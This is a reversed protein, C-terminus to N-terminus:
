AARAKKQTATILEIPFKLVASKRTGDEARLKQLGCEGRLVTSFRRKSMLAEGRMDCHRKYDPWFKNAPLWRKTEREQDDFIRARSDLWRTVSNESARKRSHKEIKWEATNDHTAKFPLVNDPETVEEVPEEPAPAPAPTGPGTPETGSTPVSGANPALKDSVPSTIPENQGIDKRVDSNVGAIKELAKMPTRPAASVANYAPDAFSGALSMPRQFSAGAAEKPKRLSGMSAVALPMALMRALAWFLLGFVMLADQWWVEDDSVKGLMRSAWGAEPMGGANVIQTDFKGELASIRKTLGHLEDEQAETVKKLKQLDDRRSRAKALEDRTMKHSEVSADRSAAMDAQGTVHFRLDLRVTYVGAALVLALGGIALLQSGNQWCQRVYLLGLCEWLVIGAAALGALQQFETTMTYAVNYTIVASYAVFLAAAVVGVGGTAYKMM